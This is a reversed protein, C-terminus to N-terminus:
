PRALLNLANIISLNEVKVSAPTKVLRQTLNVIGKIGTKVLRDTMAQADKNQVSLIAYEIKEQKIVWPMDDAPYLPFSTRLIEVRYLNSDFGVKIEFGSSEFFSQDLLAAGLRGLGVICCNKTSSDCIFEELVFILNEVSYGNSVGNLNKGLLWFDHRILSDKWGTIESIQASTIKKQPWAKLIQLLQVMRKKSAEPLKLTESM